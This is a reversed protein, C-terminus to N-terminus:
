VSVGRARLYPAPDIRVGGSWVEFHIHCGTSAGTSGTYAIVQGARVRQGYSVNYGGSMIHAYATVIGNSHRIQVYNGWAGSLGAFIVTGSAAAYIPSGCGSGFDIGRHGSSTCYGGSCISGRTGFWSTIGGHGPRVWGSPQVEGGGGGSSGGAPSGGGGGSSGGSSSGGGGGGNNNNAAAEERRRKEEERRRREEERRRRAEEERARRAAEERQRKLRAERERRRVEVGEKYSAVTAATTDRLADLQAELVDRHENQAALAAQAAEAAAQAAQLKSEAEVKLRDREKRAVEAQNALNKANDRAGTAEAYVERNAEVLKDMTGLRGLLDDAGATSESFFLDLTADSKGSRYQQAALVGLKSAAADARESEADAQAQLSEALAHATELNDVAVAYENGLREAEAQKSQVDNELGQILGQIRTIESGKAAQNSRAKEVDDWSPYTAAFAPMAIGFGATAVAAGFVGLGLANRRSISSRFSRMEDTTPACGCDVDTPDTEITM